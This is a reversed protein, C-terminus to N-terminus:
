WFSQRGGVEAMAFFNRWRWHWQWWPSLKDLAWHWLIHEKHVPHCRPPHRTQLLGDFDMRWGTKAYPHCIKLLWVCFACAEPGGPVLFDCKIKSLRNRRTSKWAM